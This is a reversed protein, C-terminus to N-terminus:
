STYFKPPHENKLRAGEKIVKEIKIECAGFKPNIPKGDLPKRIQRNPM